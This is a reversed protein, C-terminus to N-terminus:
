SAKYEIEEGNQNYYVAKERIDTPVCKSCYRFRGNIYLVQSTDKCSKCYFAPKAKIVIAKIM